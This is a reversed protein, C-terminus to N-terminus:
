FRQKTLEHRSFYVKRLPIKKNAQWTFCLSKSGFNEWNLKDRSVYVKVYSIPAGIARLTNKSVTNLKYRTRTPCFKWFRKWSTVHKLQAFNESLYLRCHKLLTWILLLKGQASPCYVSTRVSTWLFYALLRYVTLSITERLIRVTEGLLRSAVSTQLCYAFCGSYFNETHVQIIKPFM